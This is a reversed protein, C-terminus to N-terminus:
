LNKILMDRRRVNTVNISVATTAKRTPAIKAPPAVRVATTDLAGLVAGGFGVVRGAVIATEGSTLKASTTSRILGATTFISAVERAGSGRRRRPRESAGSGGSRNLSGNSKPPRPSRSGVRRPAPLPKMM